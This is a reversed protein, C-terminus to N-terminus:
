FEYAEDHSLQSVLQLVQEPDVSFWQKVHLFQYIDQIQYYNDLIIDKQNNHLNTLNFKYFIDDFKYLTYQSFLLFNYMINNRYIEQLLSLINLMIDELNIHLNTLNFKYFNDDFNYLTYRLILIFNYKINNQYIEQLQYYNNLMIDKLINHLDLWILSTFIIM